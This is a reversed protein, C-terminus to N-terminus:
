DFDLTGVHNGVRVYTSQAFMNNQSFAFFVFFSVNVVAFVRINHYLVLVLVGCMIM